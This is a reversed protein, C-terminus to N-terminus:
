EDPTLGRMVFDVTERGLDTLDADPDRQVAFIPLEISAEVLRLAVSLPMRRFVGADMGAALISRLMASDEDSGTLYLPVGDPDRHAVVIETGATLAARHGDVHAVFAEAYARLQEEPSEEAAVRAVIAEDLGAFVVDIVHLLLADRSGFYYLLASKAVGARRAIEALSARHYGLENLTVIAAEVIQARRATETFTLTPTSSSAAM